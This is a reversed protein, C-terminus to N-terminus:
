AQPQGAELRGEPSRGDRGPRGARGGRGPRPQFPRQAGHWPVDAPGRPSRRRHRSPRVGGLQDRKARGRPTSRSSGTFPASEPDTVSAPKPGLRGPGAPRRTKWANRQTELMAAQADGGSIVDGPGDDDEDGRADLHMGFGGLMDDVPDFTDAAADERAHPGLRGLRKSVRHLGIVFNPDNRRSCHIGANDLDEIMAAAQGRVYADSDTGSGRYDRSASEYRFAM